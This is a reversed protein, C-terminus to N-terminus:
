KRAAAKSAESAARALAEGAADRAGLRVNEQARAIDALLAERETSERIGAAARQWDALIPPLKERWDARGLAAQADAAIRVMRGEVTGSDRWPGFQWALLALLLTAVLGTVVVVKRRNSGTKDEEPAPSASTKPAMAVPAPNTQSAPQAPSGSGSPQGGSRAAFWELVPILATLSMLVSSSDPEDVRHAADNGLNRVIDARSRLEEPFAGEKLLRTLLNELPETGPLKGFTDHHVQRLVYQLILRLNVLVARNSEHITHSTEDALRRLEEVARSVEVLRRALDGVSAQFDRPASSM